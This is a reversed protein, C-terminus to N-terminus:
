CKPSSSYGLARYIWNFVEFPRVSDICQIPNKEREKRALCLTLTEPLPVYLDIKM